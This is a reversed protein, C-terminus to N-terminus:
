PKSLSCNIIINQHRPHTDIPDTLTVRIVDTITYQEIDNPIQVVLEVSDKTEPKQNRILGTYSGIYLFGSSQIVEVTYRISTTTLNRLSLSFSNRHGREAILTVALPTDRFPIDVIGASQFITRIREREEKELKIKSLKEIASEIIRKVDKCLGEIQECKEKTIFRNHAVDNRLSYLLGWQKSLDDGKVGLLISFHKEWNSRPLYERIKEQDAKDFKTKHLLRDLESIDLDRKKSFLVGALDIFDLKFLDNLLPSENKSASIKKLPEPPISKDSWNMGVNILMFQSILKRMLNEIENILPYALQAYHRGVDDWLTNVKTSGLSICEAIDKIKKGLEALSDIQDKKDLVLELLFFRENQAPLTDTFLSYKVTIEDNGGVEKRYSITSKSVTLQSDVNLLDIFAQESNCFSNNGGINVLLELKM